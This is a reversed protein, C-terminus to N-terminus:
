GFTPCDEQIGTLEPEKSVDKYGRPHPFKLKSHMKLKEVYEANRDQLLEIHSDYM